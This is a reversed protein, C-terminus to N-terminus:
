LSHPQNYMWLVFMPTADYVWWVIDDAFTSITYKEPLFYSKTYKNTSIYLDMFKYYQLVEYHQMCQQLCEIIIYILNIIVLFIWSHCLIEKIKDYKKM